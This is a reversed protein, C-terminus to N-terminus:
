KDTAEAIWNKEGRLQKMANLLRWSCDRLRERLASVPFEVVCIQREDEL